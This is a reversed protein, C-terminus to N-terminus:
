VAALREPDSTFTAPLVKLAVGWDLTTDSPDEWRMRGLIRRAKPGHPNSGVRLLIVEVIPVPGSSFGAQWCYHTRDRDSM